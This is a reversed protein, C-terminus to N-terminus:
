IPWEKQLVQAQCLLIKARICTKTYSRSGTIRDGLIVDKAPDYGNELIGEAAKRQLAYEGQTYASINDVVAKFQPDQEALKAIKSKSANNLTDAYKKPWRMQSKQLKITGPNFNKRAVKFAEYDSAFKKSEDAEPDGVDIDAEKYM